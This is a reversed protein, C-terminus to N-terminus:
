TEEMDSVNNIVMRVEFKDDVAVTAPDDSRHM